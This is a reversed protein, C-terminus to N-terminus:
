RIIEEPFDQSDKQPSCRHFYEEIRHNGKATM